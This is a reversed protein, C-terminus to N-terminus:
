EVIITRTEKVNNGIISLQYTGAAVNGLAITETASGGAHSITRSAITQGLSNFVTVTYSGKEVNEMQLTITKNRVPNGAIAFSNKMGGIKVNVVQTYRSTGNKDVLKIRYYNSGNVPNADFWNYTSSGTATVTGAKAFSTADTSKEVEYAAMNLENVTNWEVQVGANKQFAKLSTISVPLAGNSRFVIRFRNAAMSAAVATTTFNVDSTGNLDLQTESNLYTDQLFADMGAGFSASAIRLTYNSQALQWAKLFVTDSPNAPLDRREISMLSNGREVAINEDINTFKGADDDNVANSFSSNFLVNAGDQSTGAAANSALFLQIGMTSTGTQTRFVNTNGTTKNAETIVLSRAAVNSSNVVFFAQGPQIATTVASSGNSRTGDTFCSVYAGSTALTPDWIWYYGTLETRSVANWDIPSAYPNGIFSYLGVGSALTPLSAPTGSASGFTMTGTLLSGTARLTTATNTASTTALDFSRNGRVLLRYANGAVLNTANTSAVNGWVQTTNNMQFLSPNGSATADFGNAQDVTSGTIHTGYGAVPNATSSTAGEQWNAKIFNTTTVGPSLLRFARKGAPIYREVTVNGTIAGVVPALRATGSASSKLTLFGGTTLTGATLTLTGTISINGSSITAGTSNNLTLNATSGTGAITQASSGNLTVTGTGTVTGDNTFAGSISLTNNATLTAGSNINIGALSQANTITPANTTGSPIIINDSAGPVIGTNWNSTTAWATSTTGTWTPYLSLNRFVRVNSGFDPNLLDPKGDGDLDAIEGGFSGGPLFDVRTAFNITGSTSTNKFIGMAGSGASVFLDTKGDGDLDGFGFRNVASVSSFDQHAGFTISGITTTTNRFASISGGNYNSVVIDLKTDGDLDGLGIYASQASGTVLEVHTAFTVTGTTTSTNRLLSVNTINTDYNGTVIDLKGDKDLDGIAIGIPTNSVAFDTKTSFSVVGPTCNNLLVSVVNGNAVAIDLKGDGDLDGTAVSWAGTSNMTLDVKAAFTITSGTTTNLYVSVKDSGSGVIVMDLKGDRDIDAISIGRSNVNAALNLQTGFSITGSSSTNTLVSITSNNYNCVVMDPKGDGNMDGVAATIPAVSSGTSINQQTGFDSAAITGKSPSFTPNFRANSTAGLVTGTNLLSIVDYNAGQPVTVTISTSTPTGTVTAKAAGFFVINNSATTNFGTGTITVSTGVLGSTPTFSTITPPAAQPNNRVAIFNTGSNNAAVIDPKGDGDLDGIAVGYPGNNTTLAVSTAYALSGVTSNNRFAAIGSNAADIKGDGDLDGFAPSYGSSATYSSVTAFNINGTGSSTNKLVNLNGFSLAIDLKGDGDVDGLVVSVIGAATFDAKTAFNATGVTSTNRLVSVSANYNNVIIDLKGDGDMDGIAGGYPSSGTGFTTGANFALSGPAFTTNLFTKINNGGNSVATIDARGDGDIDGIMVDLPNSLGTLDLKTAFTISGVTTTTNRFVSVTNAGYNAVAMDLKGDGDIDGLSVHYANSGTAFDAKTAFSITGNTSTNLFVSVNNTNQNSVVVEPKGDGDLDGIAIGVPNSGATFNTGSSFDSAAFGTKVPTFTPTFFASSMSLLNTGTNLVTIASYTAGSPVTVTMSTATPTGTVIAKTAGFFVINNAATTNFGTGTITVSTGVVGSTPSFSTISPPNAARTVTITYTKTTTGDEATVLVDITNSGVNLSLSGSPSGNTVSAYSGGNVRAQITANPDNRTPTVTVSATANTVSATYTTTASAFTPTITGATTALGSLTADTSTIATLVGTVWNSSSGSLAFGSLTGTNGNGSADIATNIGTNTGGATGQNFHYLGILGAQSNLEVNMNASIQAQTRVVNWIRVEDITGNFFYGNNYIRGINFHTGAPMVSPSLTSGNTAVAVGNIYLTKGSTTSNTIAIHYWTNTNITGGGFSATSGAASQNYSWLQGGNIELQLRENLTGDCFNLVWQAGGKYYVNAELTYNSISSMGTGAEVYDDSGDFDLANAPAAARTVTITYTKIAAGGQATVRIDITNTGTILTLSGSASASAVTSYSGGNVRVDIVSNVDSKTPTVTVNTTSYSVNDTYTTTASAFVPSLTGASIALASLDANATVADNRTVYIAFGGFNPQVIDPKGDANVDGMTGGEPYAGINVTSATAFSITGSSSTNLYMAATGSFAPILMDVKGDGNIDGFCVNRSNSLCTLDQRTGMTVTGATTTTNRFVSAVTGTEYCIALDNKGDGDIDATSLWYGNSAALTFNVKTAFSISSTSTNLVISVASGGRNLIAFDLKGDGDYDAVGIGHYAAGGIAVDIRTGFSITGSTSTNPFVSASTSGNHAVIMDPKGDGDFDAFAIAYPTGLTSVTQRTGLSLSGSSSGNKFISVTGSGNDGVAIDPKGDGDLDAFAPSCMPSTGSAGVNYSTKTGFSVSSGSGNNLLISIQNTYPNSAVMDPKGDGDVDCLVVGSSQYNTGLDYSTQTNFDSAAFATGKGGSYTPIFETRTLAALKTSTNLVSLAAHTAGSPVTVTLSTASASTVLAKTAGFFVTNSAATANFGTGTIIVSAGVNATVPTFSTITPAQANSVDHLFTLLFSTIIFQYFLKM